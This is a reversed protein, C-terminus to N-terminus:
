SVVDFVLSSCLDIFLANSFVRIWYITCYVIRQAVFEFGCYNLM